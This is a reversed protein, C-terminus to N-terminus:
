ELTVKGPEFHAKLGSTLCIIEIVEEIPQKNFKATLLKNGNLEPSLLIIEDKYYKNLEEVVVTLSTEEFLFEGSMWGFVYAQSHDLPMVKETSVEAAQGAKLQLKANENRVEVLGHNVTIVTSKESSNVNFATGLVEVEAAGAEIIFPLEPNRFVDFYAEGNLRVSRNKDFNEAYSLQSGPAMTVSTGDPLKVVQAVGESNSVEIFGPANFFGGLFLGVVLVAAAATAITVIRRMTIVRGKQQPEDIKSEIKKWASTKEYQHQQMIVPEHWSKQFLEYEEENSKKWNRVLENEEPSAEGAFHKAIIDYLEEM